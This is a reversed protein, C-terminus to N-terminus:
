QMTIIEEENNTNVTGIDGKNILPQKVQSSKVQCGPRQATKACNLNAMLLSRYLPLLVNCATCFPASKFCVVTSSVYVYLIDTASRKYLM